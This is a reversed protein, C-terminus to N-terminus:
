CDALLDFTIIQLDDLYWDKDFSGCSRVMPYINFGAKVFERILKGKPTDLIEFDAVIAEATHDHYLNTIKHSVDKLSITLTQEQSFIEGFLEGVNSKIELKEIEPLVDVPSWIINTEPNKRSRKLFSIVEGTLVLKDDTFEKINLAPKKGIPYLKNSM